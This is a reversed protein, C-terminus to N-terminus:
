EDRGRRGKRRKENKRGETKTNEKEEIEGKV